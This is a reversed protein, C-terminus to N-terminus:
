MKSPLFLILQPFVTILFLVFLGMLLFPLVFHLSQGMEARAIDNGLLLTAGVPPTVLGLCLNFVMLVGFQLNSLECIRALPLLVPTMIVIAANADMICGVVLLIVNIIILIGIKNETIALVGDTIMSSLDSAVVIWAVLKSAAIIMMIAATSIASDFFVQPIAKLPLERHICIGVVLAYVVAIVSAETPTCIGSFICGLIVVPMLIAFVGNKLARLIIALSARDHRAYGRKRAICYAVLCLGLAFLFGPIASGLFLSGIPVGLSAGYVILPISPPILPGCIAASAAVAATFGKDYGEDKMAPITMGGIASVTAVASGSIAAFFVSGGITVMALSGRLWGILVRSIEILRKTLGGTTMLNGALIFFPIAMLPFSDMGNFFKQPVVVLSIGGEFLLAAMSAIGLAFAVPVGLFALSFLGLLLIPAM